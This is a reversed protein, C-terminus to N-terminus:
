TTPLVISHFVLKVCWYPIYTHQGTYSTIVLHFNTLGNPKKLHCTLLFSRAVLSCSLLPCPVGLASQSQVISSILCTCLHFRLADISYTTSSNQPVVYVIIATVGYDLFVISSHKMQSWITRYCQSGFRVSDFGGGVLDGMDLIVLLILSLMSTTRQTTGNPWSMELYHAIVHRLIVLLILSLM